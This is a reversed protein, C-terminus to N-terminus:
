TTFTPQVFRVTTLISTIFHWKIISLMSNCSIAVYAVKSQFDTM